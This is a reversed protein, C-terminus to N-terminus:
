AAGVGAAVGTARAIAAALHGSLVQVNPELVLSDHGGPVEVIKLKPVLEAWGLTPGMHRYIEDVLRARFLLVEGQYPRPHYRSAAQLFARALKLERLELPLPLDNAALLM